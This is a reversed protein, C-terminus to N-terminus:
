RPYCHVPLPPATDTFHLSVDRVNPLNGIRGFITLFQNLDLRIGGEEGWYEIRVQRITEKERHAQDILKLVRTPGDDLEVELKTAMAKM